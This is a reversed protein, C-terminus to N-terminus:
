ESHPLNNNMQQHPTLIAGREKPFDSSHQLIFNSYHKKLINSTFDEPKDM